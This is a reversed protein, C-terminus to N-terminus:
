KADAAWARELRKVDVLAFRGRDYIVAEAPPDRLVLDELKREALLERAFASLPEFTEAKRKFDRQYRARNVLLHTVGYKKAYALVDKRDTAYFARLTDEGRAKQRQWSKTLWPQMTEFGGNNARQAFLPIDDGDRIHSAIRVDPPLGRIFEWLPAERRYDITMEMVRGRSNKAGDGLFVWVAVIVLAAATNRIPQRLRSPLRPFLFGLTSAALGVGVVRMGYSYYREPSYLRFAFKVSVVYLFFCAVLFALVSGPVPCLGLLPLAILVAVLALAVEDRRENVQLDLKPWLPEGRPHFVSTFSEGFSRGPDSLPLLWLRGTRSFAPEEQAQELTHVPGGDSAGLFVAPALLAACVGVLMGYNLVRRATTRFGQQGANRLAYLGEAGLIMALASPYTLAAIV